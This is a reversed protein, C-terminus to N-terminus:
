IGMFEFVVNKPTHSLAMVEKWEESGMHVWKLELFEKDPDIGPDITKLLQPQKDIRFRFAHVMLGGPLLKHGLYDLKDAELGTEEFLERCAGQHPSENDNIHGGPLSWLLNDARKGFLIADGNIIAISAVEKLGGSAMKIAESVAKANQQTYPSNLKKRSTTLRGM